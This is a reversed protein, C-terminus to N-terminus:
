KALIHIARKEKSLSKYSEMDIYIIMNINRNKLVKEIMKTPKLHSNKKLWINSFIQRIFIYLCEFPLIYFPGCKIIDISIFLDYYESKVKKM